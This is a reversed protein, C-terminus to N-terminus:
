RSMARWYIRVTRRRANRWRLRRFCCWVGTRGAFQDILRHYAAVFEPLRAVGDFAEMQGFQSVIVTAGIADLQSRWSGFNLDRWQEYVTDGEWAMSRFRPQQASFGASLRAEMAGSNEERVLNTQGAFVVVEKQGLAFQGNEWGSAEAGGTAGDGFRSLIQAETPVLDNPYREISIARYFIRAKSNGHIQLGIVGEEDIGPERETYDATLKGNLFIRIRGAECRIEYQNWDGPKELGEM